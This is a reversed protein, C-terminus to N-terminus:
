KSDNSSELDEDSDEDNERGRRFLVCGLLVGIAASAAVGIGLQNSAVEAPEPGGMGPMPAPILEAAGPFPNVGPPVSGPVPAGTMASMFGGGAPGAMGPMMMMGGAKALTGLGAMFSTSEFAPSVM